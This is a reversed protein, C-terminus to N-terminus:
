IFHIIIILVCHSLSRSNEWAAAPAPKHWSENSAAKLGLLVLTINLFGSVVPLQLAAFTGCGVGRYIRKIQQPPFCEGGATYSQKSPHRRDHVATGTHIHLLTHRFRLWEM